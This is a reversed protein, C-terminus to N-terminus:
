GAASGRLFNILLSSVAKPLEQQVWNAAGDSCGIERADRGPHTPQRGM